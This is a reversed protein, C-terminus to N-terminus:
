ASKRCTEECEECQCPGRRHEEEIARLTQSELSRLEQAFKTEGNRAYEHALERGYRGALRQLTKICTV